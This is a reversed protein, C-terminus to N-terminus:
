STLKQFLFKLFGRDRNENQDEILIEVDYDNLLEGRIVGQSLLSQEKFSFSIIEFKLLYNLILISFIFVYVAMAIVLFDNQFSEMIFKSRLGFIISILGSFYCLLGLINHSVRLKFTQYFNKFLSFYKIFGILSVFFQITLTMLGIWSHWSNFHNKLEFNKQRISIFFSVFSLMCASSQLLIHLMQYYKRNELDHRMEKVQFLGESLLILFSITMLIPHFKFLTTESNLFLILTILLLFSCSRLTWIIISMLNKQNIMPTNTNEHTEKGLSYDDSETTLDSSNDELQINIENSPLFSSTSKRPKM